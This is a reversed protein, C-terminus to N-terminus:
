RAGARSARDQEKRPGGFVEGRRQVRTGADLDPRLLRGRRGTPREPEAQNVESRLVSLRRSRRASGARGGGNEATTWSARPRTAPGDTRARNRFLSVIRLDRPSPETPDIVSM